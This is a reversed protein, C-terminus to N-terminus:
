LTSGLVLILFCPYLCWVHVTVNIYNKLSHVLAMPIHLQLSLVGTQMSDVKVTYHMVAM